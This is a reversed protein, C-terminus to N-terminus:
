VLLRKLADSIPNFLAMLGDMPNYIEWRFIRTVAGFAGLFLVIAFVWLEKKMRQEAWKRGDMVAIGAVVILLGLLAWM